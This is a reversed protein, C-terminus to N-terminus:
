GFKGSIYDQTSKQKPSNFMNKTKNFEVLFGVKGGPEKGKKETNFLITYAGLPEKANKLLDLVIKQNKTLNDKKLSM